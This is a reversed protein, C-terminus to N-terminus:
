LPWLESKSSITNIKSFDTQQLTNRNTGPSSKRIRTFCRRSKKAKITSSAINAQSIQLIDPSLERCASQSNAKLNLGKVIVKRVPERKELLRPCNYCNSLMVHPFEKFEGSKKLSGQETYLSDRISKLPSKTKKLRKQIRSFIKECSFYPESYKLTDGHTFIDRSRINTNLSENQNHYYTEIYPFLQKPSPKLQNTSALKIKKIVDSLRQNFNGTIEM